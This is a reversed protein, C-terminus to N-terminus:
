AARKRSKSSNDAGKFFAILEALREARHMADQASSASKSALASNEQTIQDLHSVNATIEDVGASQEVNAGAIESVKGSLATVSKLITELVGGTQRVLMVGDAVNSEGAQILNKIDSASESSRQALTRVESAVVAFGRGADGARAAEVAANLALLNTQFAISDIVTIIEAIRGSSVEIREIASVTEKVVEGAEQVSKSSTTALSAAEKANSANSRVTASMEEMTAATEELASAQQEARSSLDGADSVIATLTSQMVDSTERIMAVLEALRDGFGNLNSQLRGFEGSYTGTMRSTLDGRAMGDIVTLAESLGHEVADILKNVAEAMRRLQGNEIKANVRASFNGNSAHAIVQELDTQVRREETDDRWEVLTGTRNGKADHIAHVALRLHRGGLTLRAIHTGKLANLMARTAAPEKHFIDINCGVLKDLSFSPLDKRMADEHKRFMDQLSGNLYRISYDKDALMIMTTARDLAKVVDEAGSARKLSTDLTGLLLDTDASGAPLGLRAALADALGGNGGRAAVMLGVATVLSLVAAALILTGVTDAASAASGGDPLASLGDRVGGLGNLALGCLVLVLVSGALSTGRVLKNVQM